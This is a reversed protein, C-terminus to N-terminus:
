QGSPAPIAASRRGASGAVARWVAGPKDRFAAACALAGSRLTVMGPHFRYRIDDTVRIELLNHAALHELLARAGASDILLEAAVSAEDWWRDPAAAVAVLLCLDDVTRIHDRLFVAVTDSLGQSSM